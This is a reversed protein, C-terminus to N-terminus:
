ISLDGKLIHKINSVKLEERISVEWGPNQAKM